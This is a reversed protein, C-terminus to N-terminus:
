LLDLSNSLRSGEVAGVHLRVAGRMAAFPYFRLGDAGRVVTLGRLDMDESIDEPPGSDDV